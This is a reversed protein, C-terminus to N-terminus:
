VSYKNRVLFHQNLENQTFYVHNHLYINLFIVAMSNCLFVFTEQLNHARFQFTSVNRFTAADKKDKNM